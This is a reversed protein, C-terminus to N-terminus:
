KYAFAVAKLIKLFERDAMFGFDDPLVHEVLHQIDADKQVFQPAFRRCFAYASAQVVAKSRVDYGIMGLLFAIDDEPQLREEDYWLGIGERSLRRWPFALGPDPKRLPAIDSHGVVNQPPIGYRGIIDRCLPILVNIQEEAFPEQGLSPSCVEIGVSRSNLDKSDGRWCSVGAHWARKSEDVVKLIEGEQTVVYHCSLKCTDLCRVADEGCHATAHLVLMDVPLRRENFHPLLMERM